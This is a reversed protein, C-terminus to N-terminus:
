GGNRPVNKDETSLLHMISENILLSIAFNCKNRRCVRHIIVSQGNPKSECLYLDVQNDYIKLACKKM